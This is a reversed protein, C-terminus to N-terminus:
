TKGFVKQLTDMFIRWGTQASDVLASWITKPTQYGFANIAPILLAIGIIIFVFGMVRNAVGQKQVSYVGVGIFLLTNILLTWGTGPSIIGMAINAAGLGIIFFILRLWWKKAHMMVSIMVVAIIVSLILSGTIIM